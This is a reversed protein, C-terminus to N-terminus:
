LVIEDNMREVHRVGVQRYNSIQGEFLHVVLEARIDDSKM